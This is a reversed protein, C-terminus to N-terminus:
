DVLLFPQVGFQNHDLLRVYYMGGPISEELDLTIPKNGPHQGQHKTMIIKGVLDVVQIELEDTSTPVDINIRDRTPNPYLKFDLDTEHQAFVGTIEDVIFVNDQINSIETNRKIIDSLTTSRIEAVESPSFAPDAEYYFRDGTRLANFQDSIITMATPGFISGEMHDEALMGAWPDIREINEYVTAFSQNLLPDTSLSAFSAMPALGFHQRVTNYDALGRDRGRNLNLSVLDLGGSGPPGFLFNRLDDIVHCDFDQMVETSIGMLYPDIGGVEPIAAPNFFADRLEISGEAMENGENDMRPLTKGITSHGYRYAATAFVNMIGPNVTQDYGQYPAPNLGLTPLWEEYVIAQMIGGVIKRARQYLMEDTWDPNASKLIEALRNHERVFITHLATLLPNENARLDGAVFFRDVHPLPMDMEPAHPDTNDYAEGSVTNYPLLNGASTKLKGDAFTRLWAARELDSGYVASADIFSTIANYHVRPNSPGTGTNPDYDSRHMPIVAQGTGGPDFFADFKPVSVDMTESAHNPSLAIDHDIFQGWGWTFGSLHLPDYKDGTQAFIENSITRPNPRNSGAPSSIEDGYALPTKIVVNSNVAGWTPNYLNNMTGDITRNVVAVSELVHFIQDPIFTILANRRIVEALTTSKVEKKEADSLGIDNEYYFRDGARLNSFQEQLITMLTPGFLAQDVNDEALLGVWLDINNIDGYTDELLKSLLPDSTIENFNTISPLGFAVRTTNYDALGRERGRNINLAALDLGGAGPPGFLFNRLDDIIKCDVDQQISTSAGILYPEIGGVEMIANPNFFADRLLVNGQAVVNGANDLRPLESSITSHGYRYAASTFENLINPNVAINYGQYSPLRVGLTPLWEEFVIAQIIAGVLKRAKQYLQEDEWDPYELALKDCLRNHERVFVTHLATLNPNENARIDGAVFWKSVQQTPMAMMPANPDVEDSFEGTVTNFPLLNGESTKLKGGTFTRLWNAHPQESGYVVSGDIFSTIANFFRRPNQPDTGTNRDYASRLMPITVQGTANPDFDPDGAPVPIDLPEEELEPSLVIDHDIFQGWAWAYASLGLPDNLDVDQGFIKNSIERPNPRDSGAPSLIGDGYSLPTKSVVDAYASGWLSFPHNLTGDISRNAQGILYFQGLLIIVCVLITNRLTTIQLINM